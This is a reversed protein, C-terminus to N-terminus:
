RIKDALTPLSDRGIVSDIEEHIKRQVDQRAILHSIVFGISNSTTEVGASFLDKILAVLQLETLFLVEILKYYLIPLKNKLLQFVTSRARHIM